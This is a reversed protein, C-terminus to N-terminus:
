IKKELHFHPYRHYSQLHVCFSCIFFTLFFGSICLLFLIIESIGNVNLVASHSAYGAKNRATCTYEGTHADQVSDINLTSFRKLKMITIGDRSAIPIGNLSWTINLPPDGKLITCQISVTEGSNIPESGFDFPHIQPSVLM